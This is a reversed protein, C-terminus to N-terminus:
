AGYNLLIIYIASGGFISLLYNKFKLHLLITVGVGLLNLLIDDKTKIKDQLIFLILIVLVASPFYREFVKLKQPIKKFILFPFARTLFNAISAVFIEIM